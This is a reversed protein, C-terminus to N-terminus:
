SDRPSNHLLENVRAVINDHISTLKKKANGTLLATHMLADRFPKYEKASRSLSNKDGKDVLNALDDMSLYSLKREQRIEISVNGHGKNLKEREKHHSIQKQAESSLSINNETIHKRILNESIFCEAYSPFNFKAEERMRKIWNNVTKGSALNPDSPTYEKSVANYLDISGREKEKLRPNEYDGHDKNDTRLKDWADVIKQVVDKRIGSLFEEYKPDDAVIGERGPTFRDTEDDLEDFNIQGYLYSEALRDTNMHTLINKERLRGNVFLDIGVKEESNQIKLDRPKQVSAIFGNVGSNDTDLRNTAKLNKLFNKIYPDNCENVIWLFQTKEALPQLDELTVEKGNIHIHFEEDLLSFRFGFAVQRRIYPIKNYIGNKIEEFYIITGQDHEEAYKSFINAQPEGLKYMEPMLDDTIARDLDSNDIVGGVYDTMGKTKSIVSIKKSCSLVALKGIGKRGIYPRGRPTESADRRKSYGVRLFKERFDVNSMGMGDDKVILNDNGIYIWVNKADADWANSIVEGLITIFSRYLSRGLHNLVSLSINFSFEDKEIKM